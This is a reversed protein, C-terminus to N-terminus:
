INLLPEYSGAAEETVRVTPSACNTVEQLLTKDLLLWSDTRLYTEEQKPTVTTKTITTTTIITATIIIAIIIATTTTTTTTKTTSTTLTLYTM